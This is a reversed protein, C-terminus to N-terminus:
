KSYEKIQGWVLRSWPQVWPTPQHCPSELNNKMGIMWVDDWRQGHFNIFIQYFKPFINFVKFSGNFKSNLVSWQCWSWSNKSIISSATSRNFLHFISIMFQKMLKETSEVLTFVLYGRPKRGLLMSQYSAIHFRKIDWSLM